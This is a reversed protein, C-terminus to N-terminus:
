DLGARRLEKGHVGPIPPRAVLVVERRPRHGMVQCKFAPDEAALRQVEIAPDQGAARAGFSRKGAQGSLGGSVVFSIEEDKELPQLGVPSQSWYWFLSRKKVDRSNRDVSTSGSSAVAIRLIAMRRQLATSTNDQSSNTGATAIAASRDNLTSPGFNGVGNTVEIRPRVKVATTTTPARAQTRDGFVMIYMTNDVTATVATM